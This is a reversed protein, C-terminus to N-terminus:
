PVLSLARAFAQEDTEITEDVHTTQGSTQALDNTLTNPSQVSQNGSQSQNNVSNPDDSQQFKVIQANLYDRVSKSQLMKEVESALHQESKKAADEKSLMNQSAYEEGYENKDKIYQQEIIEFVLDGQKMSSSLPFESSNEDLYSGVQTKFETVQQNEQQKAVTEEQFGKVEKMIDARLEEKYKVPDFDEQGPQNDPDTGMFEDVVSELSSFRKDQEDKQKRLQEKEIRIREKERYVNRQQETLQAWEDAKPAVPAEPAVPANPDVEPATNSAELDAAIQNITPLGQPASPAAPATTQGNVATSITESSM